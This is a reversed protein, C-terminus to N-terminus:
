SKCRRLEGIKMDGAGGCRTGEKCESILPVRAEGELSKPVFEGWLARTSVKDGFDERRQTVTKPQM